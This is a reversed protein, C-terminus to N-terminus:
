VVTGEIYYSFKLHDDVSSIKFKVTQGEKIGAGSTGTTCIYVNANLKLSSQTYIVGGMNNGLPAYNMSAVVTVTKGVINEGNSYAEIAESPSSYDAKSGCGTVAFGMTLLLVATLTLAIIKRMTYNERITM